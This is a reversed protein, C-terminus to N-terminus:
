LDINNSQRKETRAEDRKKALSVVTGGALFAVVVLLAHSHSVAVGAAEAFMKLGIFVLVQPAHVPLLRLASTNTRFWTVLGHSM